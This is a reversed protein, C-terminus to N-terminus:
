IIALEEAVVFIILNQMLCQVLVCLKASNYQRCSIVVSIEKVSKDCSVLVMGPLSKLLCASSFSEKLYVLLKRKIRKSDLSCWVM